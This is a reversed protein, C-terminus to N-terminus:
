PKDLEAKMAEYKGLFPDPKVNRLKFYLERLTQMTNKEGPNLELAKEFYPIVAEYEAYVDQLQKNYEAADMIDNVKNHLEIVKNLKMAGLNYQAAFDKPDLSIAKENMEISLDIKGMKEYLSGKARYFSGNNPDLAIAADLYEEAKEPEGGSLYYNILEVLMFADNPFLEYGKHLYGVSEQTKGQTKLINALMAYCRAPEYGLQLSQKFYKEAAELTDAKQAAIAANYIITTDAVKRKLISSNEITLVKEFDLFAQKYKDGNYAEVAKNTYDIVLNDYQGILKKGFKNKVDLAIVKQYEEYAIALANDSLRRYDPILSEFIAQYIQGRVFHSKPDDVCKEHTIAEDITKKAEDLKGSNYFSLANNVKGSQAYSLVTVCLFMM